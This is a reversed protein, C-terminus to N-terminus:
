GEPTASPENESSGYDKVEKGQHFIKLPKSLSDSTNTNEKKKKLIYEDIAIRLHESVKGPLKRLFREQDNRMYFNRLTM